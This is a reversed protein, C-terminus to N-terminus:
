NKVEELETNYGSLDLVADSLQTLEGALLLRKIVEEPGSASFKSVLNSDSWNPKVTAAVILACNFQENDLKDVSGRKTQSTITCRERISYVQKGTLAKITVPIGLRPMAVTKEPVTDAALLKQLVQDDTLDNYNTDM